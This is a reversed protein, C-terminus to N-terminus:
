AELESGRLKVEQGSGLARSGEEATELVESFEGKEEAERLGAENGSGEVEGGCGRGRLSGAWRRVNTKPGGRARGGWRVLQM